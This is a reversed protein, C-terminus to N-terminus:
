SREHSGWGVRKSAAVASEHGLETKKKNLVNWFYVGVECTFMPHGAPSYRWLALLTEYSANDIRAKLVDISNKSTADNTINENCM